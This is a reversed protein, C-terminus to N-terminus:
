CSKYLPTLDLHFLEYTVVSTATRLFFWWSCKKRGATSTRGKTVAEIEARLQQRWYGVPDAGVKRLHQVWWFASYRNLVEQLAVLEADNRISPLLSEAAEERIITATISDRLSAESPSNMGAPSFASREAPTDIQVM